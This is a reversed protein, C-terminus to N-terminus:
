SRQGTPDSSLSAPTEEAFWRPMPVHFASCRERIGWLRAVVAPCIGLSAKIYVEQQYLFETLDNTTDAFESGFRRV